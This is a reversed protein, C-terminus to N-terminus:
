LETAMANLAVARGLAYSIDEYAAGFGDFLARNLAQGATTTGFDIYAQLEADTLPSYAMLLYGYLWSLTDARIVEVEGSVEDLMEDETMDLGDGDSLGRLFQFNSNIATTVNREVMDGDAVLGRIMQLRADEGHQLDRYRKRAAEEVDPDHIAVRASNELAVIRGGLDSAFFDVTQELTEGQLERALATRVAEVIRGPDYIAEVQVQWGAGGQGNLMEINLDQASDLGEDRLIGAVQSLGLVDVLVSLRADAFAPLPLALVTLLPWILFARRM